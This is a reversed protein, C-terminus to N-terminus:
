LISVLETNLEPKMERYCNLFTCSQVAHYREATPKNNAAIPEANSGIAQVFNVGGFLIVLIVVDASSQVAQTLPTRANIIGLIRM